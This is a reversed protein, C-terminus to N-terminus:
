VIQIRLNVIMYTFFMWPIRTIKIIYKNPEIYVIEEFKNMLKMTYFGHGNDKM